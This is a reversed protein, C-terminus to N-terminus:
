SRCDNSKNSSVLNHDWGLVAHRHVAAGKGELFDQNKEFTSPPQVSLIKNIIVSYGVM